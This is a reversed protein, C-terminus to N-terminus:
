FVGAAIHRLLSEPAKTGPKVLKNKTLVERLGQKSLTKLAKQVHVGGRVSSQLKKKSPVSIRITRRRSRHGKRRKKLGGSKSKSVLSETYSAPRVLPSREKVSTDNEISDKTTDAMSSSIGNSKGQTRIRAALANTKSSSPNSINFMNQRKPGVHVKPLDGRSLLPPLHESRHLLKKTNPANASNSQNLRHHRVIRQHHRHLTSRFSDEGPTGQAITIQKLSPM